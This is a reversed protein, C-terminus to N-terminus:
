YPLYHYDKNFQFICTVSLILSLIEACCASLWIGDKGFFYPLLIVAGAQFLLTRMFSIFASIKGNNLATFFASTLLNIGAPAFMFAYLSFAYKTLNYLEKDYGVFITSILPAALKAALTLFIGVFLILSYSKKFLNQVEKHNQAGYHYSIVPSIGITYGM